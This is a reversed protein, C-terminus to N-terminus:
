NAIKPNDKNKSKPKQLGKCTEIIIEKLLEKNDVEYVFYMPKASEYPIQEEVHYKRMPPHRALLGGAMRQWEDQHQVSGQAM